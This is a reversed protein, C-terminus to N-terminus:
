ESPSLRFFHNQLHPWNIQLRSLTRPLLWFSLPTLVRLLYWTLAGLFNSQAPLFRLHKRRAEVLEVAVEMNTYAYNRRLQAPPFGAERFIDQYLSVNRYVAQYEGSPTLKGQPVTTERLVISAGPALRGKLSRLMVVADEDDLYMCLGGLFILDFPGDPIDTRVDGEIIEVGPFPAMLTRAAAVMSASQEFGVVSDYRNAFIKTWSGAGCGLDLVRGEPPVADLWEAITSLEKGLRYHISNEPLNQEHAMYSATAATNSGAAQFYRRVVAYNLRRGSSSPNNLIFNWHYSRAM